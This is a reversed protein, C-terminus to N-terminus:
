DLILLYGGKNGSRNLARILPSASADFENTAGSHDAGIAKAITAAIEGSDHQGSPTLKSGTIGGVLVAVVLLLAFTTVPMTIKGAAKNSLDVTHRYSERETELRERELALRERELQLKERELSIEQSANQEPEAM